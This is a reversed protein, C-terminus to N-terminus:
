IEEDFAEEDQVAATYKMYNFYHGPSDNRQSYFSSNDPPTYLPPDETTSYPQSEHQGMYPEPFMHRPPLPHLLHQQRNAAYTEPLFPPLTEQFAFQQRPPNSYGEPSHLPSMPQTAYYQQHDFHPPSSHQDLPVFNEASQQQYAQSRITHAILLQTSIASSTSYRRCFGLLLSFRM